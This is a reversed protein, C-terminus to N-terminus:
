RFAIKGPGRLDLKEQEFYPTFSYPEGTRFETGQIYDDFAYSTNHHLNRNIYPNHMFVEPWASFTNIKCDPEKEKLWRIFSTAIIHKGIGGSLHLTYTKTM